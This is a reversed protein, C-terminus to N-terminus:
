PKELPWTHIHSNSQLFASLLAVSSSITPHCWWSLPHTQTFELLQHHVPFGPTSCDMPDCLWLRSLSQVSSYKVSLFCLKGGPGGTSSCKFQKWTKLILMSVMTFMRINHGRPFHPLVAYCLTQTFKFKSFIVLHARWLSEVFIYRRDGGWPDHSLETAGTM